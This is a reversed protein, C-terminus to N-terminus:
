GRAERTPDNDVYDYTGVLEVRQERNKDLFAGLTLSASVVTAQKVAFTTAAEPVPFDWDDRWSADVKLAFAFGAGKLEREMRHRLNALLAVVDGDVPELSDVGIRLDTLSRTLTAITDPSESITGRMESM